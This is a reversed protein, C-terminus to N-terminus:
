WTINVMVPHHDSAFRGGWSQAITAHKKIKLQNTNLFIHDIESAEREKNEFGTFTSVPGFHPTESLKLANLLGENLLQCPEEQPTSNFDGLIIAPNNKAIDKVLQIILKASEARATKGIHDFHTNFVYLIKGNKKVEFKAYTVIRNLAADWGKSPTYPTPSLWLTQTELLNLEDKKYLIPSFEGAEKGDDRGKGVYGYEPLISLVDRIQGELAEQMGCVSVEYFRLISCLNEKRNDWRNEGDKETNFRINYTMINMEQAYIPYTYLNIFIFFVINVFFLKM